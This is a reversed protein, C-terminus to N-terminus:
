YSPLEHLLFASCPPSPKVVPPSAGRCGIAIRLGSCTRYAVGVNVEAQTPLGSSITASTMLCADGLGEPSQLKHAFSDTKETRKMAGSTSNILGLLRLSPPVRHKDSLQRDRFM